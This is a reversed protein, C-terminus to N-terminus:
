FLTIEPANRIIIEPNATLRVLPVVSKSLQFVATGIAAAPGALLWASKGGVNVATFWTSGNDFSASWDTPISAVDTTITLEYYERGSNKLQM